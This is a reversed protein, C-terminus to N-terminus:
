LTMKEYFLILITLSNHSGGSRMSINFGREGLIKVLQIAATTEDDQKIREEIADLM